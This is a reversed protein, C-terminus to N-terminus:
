RPGSYGDERALEALWSVEAARPTYSAVFGFPRAYGSFVLSPLGDFLDSQVVDRAGRQRDETGRRVIRCSFIRGGSVPIVEGLLRRGGDSRVIQNDILTSCWCGLM